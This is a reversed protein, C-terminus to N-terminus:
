ATVGGGFAREIVELQQLERLLTKRREDRALLARILADLHELTNGPRQLLQQLTTGNQPDVVTDRIRDFTGPTILLQGTIQHRKQQPVAILDAIVARGVGIREAPSTDGFCGRMEPWGAHLPQWDFGEIASTQQRERMHTRRQPRTVELPQLAALYRAVNYDVDAEIEEREIESFGEAEYEAHLRAQDVRVVNEGVYWRVLCPNCVGYTAGCWPIVDSATLGCAPCRGFRPELRIKYRQDIERLEGWVRKPTWARAEDAELEAWWRRSDDDTVM